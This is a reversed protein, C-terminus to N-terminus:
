KKKREEEEEEEFEEDPIEEKFDQLFEVKHINWLDKEYDHVYKNRKVIAEKLTYTRIRYKKLVNVSYKQKRYKESVPEIYRLNTYSSCKNRNLNNIRYNCIRLNSKRNNFTDRDIHDVIKNDPCETLYRHLLGLRMSYAYIGAHRIAVAWLGKQLKPIDEKDIIYKYTAGNKRLIELVGYNEFEIYKNTIKQTM